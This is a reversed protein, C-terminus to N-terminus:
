ISIFIFYNLYYFRLIYEFIFDKLTLVRPQIGDVLAVLNMHFSTQLPTYKYLQNLIKKPYADKKLDIVVRVGERSSEDRLDQIGIIRKNKVLEAIKEFYKRTLLVLDIDWPDLQESSILDYIIQQWDPKRSTIVDYVQQNSMKEPEPGGTEEVSENEDEPLFKEFNTM